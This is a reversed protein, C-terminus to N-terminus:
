PWTKPGVVGDPLLGKIHQSSEVVALTALGFMGDVRLYPYVNESDLRRQLAAVCAGSSGVRLVPCQGAQPAGVSLMTYLTVAAYLSAAATTTITSVLMVAGTFPGAAIRLGGAPRAVVRALRARVAAFGFCLATLLKFLQGPRDLIVREQEEAMDRAYPSNAYRVSASWRVIWRAICETWGAVENVALGAILGEWFWAPM